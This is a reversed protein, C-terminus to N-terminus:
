RRRKQKTLALQLRLQQLRIWDHLCKSVGFGDLVVVRRSESLEDADVEVHRSVDGTHIADQPKHQPKPNFPTTM